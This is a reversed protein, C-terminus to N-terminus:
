RRERMALHMGTIAIVALAVGAVGVLGIGQWVIRVTLVVLGLIVLVVVVEMLVWAVPPLDGPAADRVTQTNGIQGHSMGHCSVARPESPGHRRHRGAPHDVMSKILQEQDTM